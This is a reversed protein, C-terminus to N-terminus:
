GQCLLTIVLQCIQCEGGLLISTNSGNDNEYFTYETGGNLFDPSDSEIVTNYYYVSGSGAYNYIDNTSSSSYVDILCDTNYALNQGCYARYSYGSKFSMGRCAGSSLALNSLSAYTFYKNTIKSTVPEISMIQKVRVGPFPVNVMDYISNASNDYSLNCYGIETSNYVRMVLHYTHGAYLGLYTNDTNYGLTSRSGILTSGEYVWIAVTKTYSDATYSDYPQADMAYTSIYVQEDKPVSFNNSTFTGNGNGSLSINVYTNRLVSKAELNPEYVFRQQGGTPYQICSLTGKKAFEFIPARYSFDMDVGGSNLYPPILANTPYGNYYGLYDQSYTGPLPV